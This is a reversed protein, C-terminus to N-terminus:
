QLLVKKFRSADLISCLVLCCISIFSCFSSPLTAVPKVLKAFNLAAASFLINLSDGLSGKLRNKDLRKNDKLHGITPEIAARRKLWRWINKPITGQRKQDVHIECNGDYDHGKYSADTYVHQPTKGTLREIQTITTKLTHGDYPNGPETKAAVLWGGKSPAAM